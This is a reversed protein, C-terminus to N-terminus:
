CDKCIVRSDGNTQSTYDMISDSLKKSAEEAHNLTRNLWKQREMGGTKARQVLDETAEPGVSGSSVRTRLFQEPSLSRLLEMADLDTIQAGAERLFERLTEHRLDSPTLKREECRQVVHRVKGHADRHTLGLRRTLEESLGSATSWGIADLARSKNVSFRQTILAVADLARCAVSLAQALDEPVGHLMHDGTGAGRSTLHATVHWGLIKATDARVAEVVLYNKKQPMYSSHGCFDDPLEMAGLEASSWYYFDTLYDNLARALQGLISLLEIGYAGDKGNYSNSVASTFGLLETTRRRSIPISTGARGVTGLPNRNLRPYASAFQDFVDLVGDRISLLYHGLTGPQAPQLHTRYPIPVAKMEEARQLAVNSFVLMKSLLSDVLGRTVLRTVTAGLDIRSLATNLAYAADEGSIDTLASEIEFLASPHKGTALSAPDAKSLQQLGYIIRQGTERALIGQELLMIAHASQVTIFEKFWQVEQKKLGQTFFRDVPPDPGEDPIAYEVDTISSKPITGRLTM